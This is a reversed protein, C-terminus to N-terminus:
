RGFLVAQGSGSTPTAASAANRVRDARRLIMLLEIDGAAGSYNIAAAFASSGLRCTTTPHTLAARSMLGFDRGLDRDPGWNVV